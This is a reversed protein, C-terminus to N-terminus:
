LRAAELLNAIKANPWQYIDHLATILHYLSANAKRKYLSGREILPPELTEATRALAPWSRITEGIHPWATHLAHLRMVAASENSAMRFDCKLAQCAALLPDPHRSQRIARSLSIM